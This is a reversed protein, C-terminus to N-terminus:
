DVGTTALPSSANDFSNGPVGMEPLVSQTFATMLSEFLPLTEREAEGGGRSTSWALLPAVLGPRSHTAQAVAAVVGAVRGAAVFEAPGDALSRGPRAVVPTTVDPVLRGTVPGATSLMEQWSPAPFVTSVAPQSNARRRDRAACAIAHPSSAPFSPQGDGPCAAVVAVGMAGASLLIHELTRIAAGSWEAEPAGWGLVLVSPPPEVSVADLVADIMDRVAPSGRHTTIRARPATDAIADALERLEVDEAGLDVVAVHCDLGEVGDPVGLLSRVEAAGEGARLSGGALPAPISSSWRLKTCGNLGLVSHTVARVGPPVWLAGDHTLHAVTEDGHLRLRIGFARELAEVTGRVTIRCRAPEAKTISLSHAAVFASVTAVDDSSAGCWAAYQTWSLVKRRDPPLLASRNVWGLGGSDPRPRLHFVIDHVGSADPLGAERDSCGGGRSGPLEVAM